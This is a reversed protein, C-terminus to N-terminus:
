FVSKTAYMQLNLISFGIKHTPPCKPLFRPPMKAFWGIDLYLVTWFFIGWFIISIKVFFTYVSIILQWNKRLVKRLFFFFVEENRRRTLFVNSEDWKENANKESFFTRHEWARKQDFIDFFRKFGMKVVIAVEVVFDVNKM